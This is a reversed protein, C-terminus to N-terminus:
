RVIFKKGNSIYVGHNAEAKALKRGMLDYTEMTKGEITIYMTNTSYQDSSEIKSYNIDTLWQAILSHCNSVQSSRVWLNASFFNGDPILENARSVVGSIGSSASSVIIGIHKGSMQSGYQFLFSQMPTAMQSWWLPTGIIICDYAALNVTVPDIEPYSSLDNPNANIKNLQETGIAYGNAEYKLGKEAPEIELVDCTIQTRLDNVVTEVNNTYSYYVVLTKARASMMNMAMLALMIIKLMSRNSEREDSRVLESLVSKILNKKM